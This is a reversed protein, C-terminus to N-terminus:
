TVAVKRAAKVATAPLNSLKGAGTIHTLAVLILGVGLIGEAIRIWTGRDNLKAWASAATQAGTAASSVANKVTSAANGAAFAKADAQTSFGVWGSVDLAQKLVPNAQNQITGTLPFVWWDGNNDQGPWGPATSMAVGETGTINMKTLWHMSRIVM